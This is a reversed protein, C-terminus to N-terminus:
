FITIDDRIYVSEQFKLFFDTVPFFRCVSQTPADNM